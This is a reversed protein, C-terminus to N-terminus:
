EYWTDLHYVEYGADPNYPMSALEDFAADRFADCTNDSLATIRDLKYTVIICPKSPNDGEPYLFWCFGDANLLTSDKSGFVYFDWYGNEKYYDENEILAEEGLLASVRKQFEYRSTDTSGAIFYSLAHAYWLKPNDNDNSDNGTVIYNDSVNNSKSKALEGAAYAEDNMTRAAVMVNRAQAIYQKDQAKDIYGTLAPVGIAALIAIIVIVVIVEVLTFGAKGTGVRQVSNRRPRLVPM